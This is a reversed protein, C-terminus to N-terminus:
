KSPSIISISHSICYQAIDGPCPAETVIIEAEHLDAFKSASCTGFKSCDVLIASQKSRKMASHKFSAEMFTATTLGGEISVGTAGLLALNINFNSLDDIATYSHFSDSNASYEGGLVILNVNPLKTAEILVSASCTIITIGRKKDLFPVVERTTSGADIFLTQGDQVLNAALSGILRKAEANKHHRSDIEEPSKPHNKAIAGGRVRIISGRKELEIIDRRVTNVSLQFKESLAELSVSGQQLIYGEIHSLRDFRM